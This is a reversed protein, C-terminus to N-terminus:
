EEKVIYMGSEDSKYVYYGKLCFKSLLCNSISDRAIEIIKHERLKNELHKIDCIANVDVVFRVLSSDEKLSKSILVNGKNLKRKLSTFDSVNNIRNVEKLVSFLDSDNTVITERRGNQLKVYTVYYKGTLNTLPTNKLPVDKKQNNDCSFLFAGV